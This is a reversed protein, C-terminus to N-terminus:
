RAALKFFFLRVERPFIDTKEGGVERWTVVDADKNIHVEITMNKVPVVTM